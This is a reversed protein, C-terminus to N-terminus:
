HIFQVYQFIGTHSFSTEKLMITCLLGGILVEEIMCILITFSVLTKFHNVLIFKFM